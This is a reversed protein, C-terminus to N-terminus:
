KLHSNANYFHPSYHWMAEGGGEGWQNLLILPSVRHANWKAYYSSPCHIRPPDVISKGVDRGWKM